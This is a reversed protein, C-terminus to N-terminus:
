DYPNQFKVGKETVECLKDLSVMQYGGSDTLLNNKWNIFRHLGGIKALYQAGPKNAIHYTNSLM